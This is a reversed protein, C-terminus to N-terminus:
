VLIGCVFIVFKNRRTPVENFNLQNINSKSRLAFHIPKVIVDIKKKIDLVCQSGWIIGRNEHIAINSLPHLVKKLDNIKNRLISGISNKILRGFFSSFPM